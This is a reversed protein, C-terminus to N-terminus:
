VHAIRLEDNGSVPLARLDYGIYRTGNVDVKKPNFLQIAPAHIIISYGTTLGITFGLSQLTNAKVVAMFAVEQAATLEFEVNGSVARNTIDVKETSLNPTFNVENNSMLELGNSPYAVGGSLVGATYTAGLTIDVVNAKTMAVPAKWSTLTPVANTAATMAGDLGTFEFKFAPREGGKANLGM